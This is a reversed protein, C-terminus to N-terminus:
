DPLLNEVRSDTTLAAALKSPDRDTLQSFTGGEGPLFLNELKIFARLSFLLPLLSRLGSFVAPTNERFLLPLSASCTRQWQLRRRLSRVKYVIREGGLWADRNLVCGVRSRMIAVSSPVCTWDLVWSHSSSHVDLPLSQANTSFLFCPLSVRSLWM